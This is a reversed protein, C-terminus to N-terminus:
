GLAVKWAYLYLIIPYLSNLEVFLRTTPYMKPHLRQEHADQDM